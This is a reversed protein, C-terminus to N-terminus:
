WEMMAHRPQFPEIRGAIEGGPNDATHVNVFAQGNEILTLLESVSTSSADEARGTAIVEDTITGADLLGTFLGEVPEEDQTEFDHLWVAIPGLPEGEHIHAMFVDEINSVSLAFTIEGARFQFAAIGRTRTKVAEQPVLSAVYLDEPFMMEPHGDPREEPRGDGPADEPRGDGPGDEHYDTATTVGTGATVAAGAALIRLATRRTQDIDDM